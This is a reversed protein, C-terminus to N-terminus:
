NLKVSGPDELAAENFNPNERPDPRSEGCGVSALCACAFLALMASKLALM